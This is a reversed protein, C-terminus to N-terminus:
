TKLFFVQRENVIFRVLGLLWPVMMLLDVKLVFSSEEFSESGLCRLCGEKPLKTGSRRLCVSGLDEGFM